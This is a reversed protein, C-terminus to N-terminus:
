LSFRNTGEHVASPDRRTPSALRGPISAIVPPPWVPQCSSPVAHATHILSFPTSPTNVLQFSSPFLPFLHSAGSHSTTPQGPPRFPPPGVTSLAPLSHPALVPVFPSSCSSSCQSRHGLQRQCGSLARSSSPWSNNTNRRWRPRLLHRHSMPIPVSSSPMMTSRPHSVRGIPFFGWCVGMPHHLTSLLIPPSGSTIVRKTCSM